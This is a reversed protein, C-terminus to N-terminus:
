ELHHGYVACSVNAKVLHEQVYFNFTEVKGRYFYTDKKIITSYVPCQLLSVHALAFVTLDVAECYLAFYEKRQQEKGFRLSFTIHERCSHRTKRLYFLIVAFVDRNQEIFFERFFHTSHCMPSSPLRLAHQLHFARLLVYHPYTPFNALPLISSPLLLLRGNGHRYSDPKTESEWKRECLSHYM